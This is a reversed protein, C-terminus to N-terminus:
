YSDIYNFNKKFLYMVTSLTFTISVSGLLVGTLASTSSVTCFLILILQRVNIELLDTKKRCSFVSSLMQFQNNRKGCQIGLHNLHIYPFESTDM